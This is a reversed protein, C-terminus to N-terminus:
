AHPTTDRVLTQEPTLQASPQLQAEDIRRLTRRVLDDSPEPAPMAHLAGLIKEVSDLRREFHGKAPRAFIKNM